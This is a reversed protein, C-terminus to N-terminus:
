NVMLAIPSDDGRYITVIDWISALIVVFLAWIEGAGALYVLGAFLFTGFNWLAWHRIRKTNESLKFGCTAWWLFDYLLTASLLYLFPETEDLSASLCMFVFLLFHVSGSLFDRRHQEAAEDQIDDFHVAAGFLLRLGMFVCVLLRLGSLVLPWTEQGIRTLLEPGLGTLVEKIGLGVLVGFFWFAHRQLNPGQM